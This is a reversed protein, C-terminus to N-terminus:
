EDRASAACAATLPPKVGCCFCASNLANMSLGFVAALCESLPHSSVSGVCVAASRGDADIACGRSGMPIIVLPILPSLWRFEYVERSISQIM